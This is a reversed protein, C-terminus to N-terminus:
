EETSGPITNVPTVLNTDPESDTTVTGNEDSVSSDEPLAPVDEPVLSSLPQGRKLADIAAKVEGNDPNMEAVKELQALADQPRKEADYVLALLYRANAYNPDLRIAQEFAAIAGKPDKNAALLVGLQYYRVPNNPELTIISLTSRIAGEVNGTAIDIQSMYYFADTFTPRLSIAESTYTRAADYNGARGELIALNLASLPNQPNLERAKLLAEKAKDYVGEVNAGILVSYMNGLLSWNDGELPDLNRAQEAASVGSQITRIYENRDEETPSQIALIENLRTFELEGIHRLYVDSPYLTYARQIETRVQERNGNQIALISSNQAQVAAYHKGVVYLGSVSGVIVGIVLLTFIFGTRRNTILSFASSKRGTLMREATITIGVCLAGLMLIVAGPVYVVSMGWIYLASVFSSLGIFYWLPDQETANILMRVGGYVFSGIFLLWVLIGLVGMTIFFTTIYGNGALFDTNWFATTNISPDKYLRWADMFKNPGIGLFANDHYVNRAIDATAQLSPRVELYTIGTHKAVFGGLGAGGIVFLTSAVFVMLSVLLSASNFPKQTLSLQAGSYRDKTLSYVIVALSVLGLVLWVVFFNIVGLMVLALFTVAAFLSRGMKTLPLQDISVLSIIVSLGLFLALDNWGGVPTSIASTFVGLSLFDAGFFLRLVQYLVVIITSAALLIYLRMVARKGSDVLVWVSMILALLVLFATTHTTLVDGIFSDKFDGSLLSSIFAGLAVVWAAILTYSVGVQVGGARLASLSYLVLASFVGVTVFVIKTYEFPALASPIFFIPLIGFIVVLINQAYTRLTEAIPDKEGGVTTVSEM